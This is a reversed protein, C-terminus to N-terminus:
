QNQKKKELMQNLQDYKIIIKKATKSPVLNAAVYLLDQEEIRAKPSFYQFHYKVYDGKSNKWVSEWKHVENSSGKRPNASVTWGTVLSTPTNLNLENNRLQTWGMSTLRDEVLKISELAPYVQRLKYFIHVTDDNERKKINEAGHLVIIADMLEKTGSKADLNCGTILVFSIMLKLVTQM